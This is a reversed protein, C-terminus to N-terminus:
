NILFDPIQINNKSLNNKFKEIIKKYKRRGIFDDSKIYAIINEVTLLDKPRCSKGFIIRCFEAPEDTVLRKSGEIPISKKLIGNKGGFSFTMLELGNYKDFVYRQYEKVVDKNDMYTIIKKDSYEVIADILSERYKSTFQSEGKRLNPSYRSFSLWGLKTSFIFHVEIFGNGREGLIPWEVILKNNEKEYKYGLEIIRTSFYDIINKSSLPHKKAFSDKNIVIDINYSKDNINLKKGASGLHLLDSKDLQFSNKIKFFIHSITGSVDKQEIGNGMTLMETILSYRSTNNSGGTNKSFDQYEIIYKM